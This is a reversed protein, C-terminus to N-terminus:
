VRISISFSRPDVYPVKRPLPTRTDWPWATANREPSSNKKAVLLLVKRTSSRYAPLLAIIAIQSFSNEANRIWESWHLCFEYFCLVLYKGRIKEPQDFALNVGAFTQDSLAILGNKLATATTTIREYM